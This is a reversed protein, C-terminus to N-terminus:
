YELGLERNIEALHDLANQQNKHMAERYAALDDFAIRRHTGVKHARLRGQEIEKVVFPRSVNLFNAADTTSFEQDAPFLAIPRGESMMGLLQGLLRLVKPPLAIRSAAPDESELVLRAARSRDLSEMICRQAARAMEIEDRSKLAPVVRRTQERTTM